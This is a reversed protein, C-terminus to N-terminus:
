RAPSDRNKSCAACSDPCRQHQRTGVKTRRGSTLACDGDEARFTLVSHDLGGLVKRGAEETHGLVQVLNVDLDDDLGTAEVVGARRVLDALVRVVSGLAGIAGSRGGLEGRVREVAGDVSEVTLHLTEVEGGGVDDSHELQARVLGVREAVRAEALKEGLLVELIVLVVEVHTSSLGDLCYLAAARVRRQVPEVSKLDREVVVLAEAGRDTSRLALSVELLKNRSEGLRWDGLVVRSGVRGQVRGLGVEREVLGNVGVGRMLDNHEVNEGGEVQGSQGTVVRQRDVVSVVRVRELRRLRDGESRV